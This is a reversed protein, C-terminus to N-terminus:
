PDTSLTYATVKTGAPIVLLGDGAALGSLPIGASWQAGTPLAAGVNVQWLVIGSTADLGYVNGSSSGVIVFQNVLIPSTNLLGDGAFSWLVTNTSLTLGRLTGSQLFYGNQGGIAPPMDALYSGTVAGSEANFTTGNYTAFGNPSFLMGNAVVPTGGGGGECGSNNNWLATGALPDFDYSQCPYSVYVGDDTVAPTSDDGNSVQQTWAIAGTAENLAYLTGGSGAGGTYVQGNLASPGSTFGRQGVLSASWNQQGTAADFAFMFGATDVPGGVVFITGNEYAANARGSILVPGWVTAGTAQDLAILESAGNISVTVFVKGAAILAYSPQGGVDVSWTSAAPFSASKFTIAGSHTPTIQFSVADPLPQVITVSIAGSVSGAGSTDKVNVSATGPSAVDSSPVQARLQTPSVLTTALTAGNWQVTSATTFGSGTAVMTFSARGAYIVSPAVSSLVLPVPAQVSFAIPSSVAAGNAVTVAVTSPVAIDAAQIAATLQTASVFTTARAAGGWQVVSQATFNTGIATLTFPSGGATASAPSLSSLMPPAATVTYHVSVTQPSNGFQSSCAQDTCAKITVTDNYTGIGLTSPLKFFLTIVASGLNALGSSTSAIGNSTFSGEIFAMVTQPSSSSIQVAIAATPAPDSLAATMDITLPSVMLSTVPTPPPPPPPPPASAAGGGGGGCACLALATAVINAALFQRPMGNGVRGGIQLHM